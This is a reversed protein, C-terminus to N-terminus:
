RYVNGIYLRQWNYKLEPGFAPIAEAAKASARLNLHKNQYGEDRQGVHHQEGHAAARKPKDFGAQFDPPIAKAHHGSARM